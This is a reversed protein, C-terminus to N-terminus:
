KLIDIGAALFDSRTMVGDWECNAQDDGNDNDDDDDDDDDDNNVNEVNKVSKLCYSAIYSEFTAIEFFFLSQGIHTQSIIAM